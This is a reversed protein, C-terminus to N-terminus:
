RKESVVIRETGDKAYYVDIVNAGEPVNDTNTVFLTLGETEDKDAIPRFVINEITHTEAYGGSVTGGYEHYAEPDYVVGYLYFMYSQYLADKNSVVVHDYDNQKPFRM